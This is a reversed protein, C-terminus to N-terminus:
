GLWRRWDDVGDGLVSRSADAENRRRVRRARGFDGVGGGEAEGARLGEVDVVDDFLPAAHGAEGGDEGDPGRAGGDGSGFDDGVEVGGAGEAEEVEGFEAVGGGGLELEGGGGEEGVEGGVDVEGEVGFVDGGEGFVEGFGGGEVEDRGGFGDEEGGARCRYNEIRGM